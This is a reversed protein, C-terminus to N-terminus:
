KQIGIIKLDYCKLDKSYWEYLSEGQSYDFDDIHVARIQLTDEFLVIFTDRCDETNSFITGGKGSESLSAFIKTGQSDQMDPFNISLTTQDIEDCHSSGGEIYFSEVCKTLYGEVWEDSDIKKARYIPKM